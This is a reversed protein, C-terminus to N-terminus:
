DNIKMEKWAHKPYFTAKDEWLYDTNGEWSYWGILIGDKDYTEYLRLNVIELGNITNELRM